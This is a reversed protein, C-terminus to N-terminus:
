GSARCVVRASTKQGTGMLFDAPALRRRVTTLARVATPTVLKPLVPGAGAARHDFTIAVVDAIPYDVAPASADGGHKAEPYVMAAAMGRQDANLHDM